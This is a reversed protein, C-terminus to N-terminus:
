KICYPCPEFGKEKADEITMMKGTIHGSMKPCIRKHYFGERVFVWNKEPQPTEVKPEEKIKRREQKEQESLPQDVGKLIKEIVHDSMHKIIDETSQYLTPDFIGGSYTNRGELEWPISLGETLTGKFLTIKYYVHGAGWGLSFGGMIKGFKNGPSFTVDVVMKYDSTEVVQFGKENLKQTINERLYPEGIDSYNSTVSLKFNNIGKFSFGETMKSRPGLASDIAGCGSLFVMAM